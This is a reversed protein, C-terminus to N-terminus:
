NSTWFNQRARKHKVEIELTKILKNIYNRKELNLFCKSNNWMGRDM